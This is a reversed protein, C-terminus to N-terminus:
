HNSNPDSAIILTIFRAGGMIEMVDKMRPRRPVIEVIKKMKM